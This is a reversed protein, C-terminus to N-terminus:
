RGARTTRQRPPTVPQLAESEETAVANGTTPSLLLTDEPGSIGQGPTLRRRRTGERAGRTRGWREAPTVFRRAQAIHPSLPKECSGRRKRSLGAPRALSGEGKEVWLQGPDSRWRRATPGYLYPPLPDKHFELVASRADSRGGALRQAMPEPAARPAGGAGVRPRAGPPAAPENRLSM